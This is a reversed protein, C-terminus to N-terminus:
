ETQWDSKSYGLATFSKTLHEGDPGIKRVQVIMIPCAFAKEITEVTIKNECVRLIQSHVPEGDTSQVVFLGQVFTLQDLSAVDLDDTFVHIHGNADEQVLYRSDYRYENALANAWLKLDEFSPVTEINLTSNATLGSIKDQHFTSMVEHMFTLTIDSTDGERVVKALREVVCGSDPGSATLPCTEYRKLESGRLSTVLMIVIALLFIAVFNRHLFGGLPLLVRNRITRYAHGFSM